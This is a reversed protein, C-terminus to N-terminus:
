LIRAVQMIKGASNALQQMSGAIDETASSLQQSIDSFDNIKEAIQEVKQGISGLIVKIEKVSNASNVSMKRIEDAVVSFGRGQEGARAAEIAANLGLLNSNAAVESIFNLITDTKRVQELVEISLAQLTEQQHALESASAALEETNSSIEQSLGSVSNATGILIEQNALSVGLGVGGVVSGREDLLVLGSGKFAYGFVEKPQEVRAIKRTKMAQHIVDGEPLPKGIVEEFNDVKMEKGNFQRILNKERDAVGIMCDIPFLQQFVPAAKIVADLINLGATDGSALDKHLDAPGIKVPQEKV